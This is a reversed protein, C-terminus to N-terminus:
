KTLKHLRFYLRSSKIRGGPSYRMGSGQHFLTLPIPSNFLPNVSCISSHFCHPNSVSIVIYELINEEQKNMKLYIAIVSLPSIAVEMSVAEWPFALIVSNGRGIFHMFYDIDKM